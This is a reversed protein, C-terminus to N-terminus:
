IQDSVWFKHGILFKNVVRAYKLQSVQVLDDLLTIYILGLITHLGIEFIEMTKQIALSFFYLIIIKFYFHFNPLVVIKLILQSKVFTEVPLLCHFHQFVVLIFYPILYVLANPLVRVLANGLVGFHKPEGLWPRIGLGKEVLEGLEIAGLLM